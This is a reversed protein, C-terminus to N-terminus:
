SWEDEDDSLAKIILWFLECWAVVVHSTQQEVAQANRLGAVLMSRGTASVSM